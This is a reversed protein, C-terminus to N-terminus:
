MGMIENADETITSPRLVSPLVSTWFSRSIGGRRSTKYFLLLYFQLNQARAQSSTWLSTEHNHLWTETGSTSTSSFLQSPCFPESPDSQFWVSVEPTVSPHLYEPHFHHLHILLLLVSPALLIRRWTGGGTQINQPSCPDLELWVQVLAEYLEQVTLVHWILAFTSTFM